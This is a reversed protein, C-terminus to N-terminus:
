DGGVGLVVREHYSLTERWLGVAVTCRRVYGKWFTGANEACLRTGYNYM